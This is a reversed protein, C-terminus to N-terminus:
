NTTSGVMDFQIREGIKPTFIYFYIFGSGLNQNWYIIGEFSTGNLWFFLPKREFSCISKTPLFSWFFPLLGKLWWYTKEVEQYGHGDIWLAPETTSCSGIQGNPCELEFFVLLCQYIDIFLTSKFVVSAEWLKAYSIWSPLRVNEIQTNGTHTHSGWWKWGEKKEACSHSNM